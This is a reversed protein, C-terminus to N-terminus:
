QITDATCMKCRSKALDCKLSVDYLCEITEDALLYICGGSKALTSVVRGTWEFNEKVTPCCLSRTGEGSKQLYKFKFREGREILSLSLQFPQSFVTCIEKSVDDASMDSNFEFKGLLGADSLIKRKEMRPIPVHSHDKGWERPIVEIDRVYFSTTKKSSSSKKQKKKEFVSPLSRKRKKDPKSSLFSASFSNSATLERRSICGDTIFILQQGYLERRAICGEFAFNRLFYM